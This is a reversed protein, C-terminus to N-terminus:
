RDDQSLSSKAEPHMQWLFFFPKHCFLLIFSFKFPYILIKPFFRPYTKVFLM